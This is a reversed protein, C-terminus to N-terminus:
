VYEEQALLLLKEPPTSPVMRVAANVIVEDALYFLPSAPLSFVFICCFRLQITGCFHQPAFLAWKKKKRKKLWKLSHLQERRRPGRPALVTAGYVRSLADVDLGVM